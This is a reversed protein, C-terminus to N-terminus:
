RVPQASGQMSKRSNRGPSTIKFTRLSDRAAKESSVFAELDADLQGRRQEYAIRIRSLQIDLNKKLESEIEKWASLDGVNIPLHGPLGRPIWLLGLPFVSVVAFAAGFVAGIAGVILIVAVGWIYKNRKLVRSNTRRVSEERRRQEVNFKQRVLEVAEEYNERLETLQTEIQKGGRLAEKLTLRRQNVDILHEPDFVRLAGEIRAAAEGASCRFFEKKRSLDALAQHAVKEAHLGRGAPVRFVYAIEFSDKVGTNGSLERRRLEVNKETFGVKVWGPYAASKFIYVYASNAQTLDREIPEDSIELSVLNSWAANLLNAAADVPCLSDLKELSPDAEDNRAPYLLRMANQPNLGKLRELVEPMGETLGPSLNILGCRM